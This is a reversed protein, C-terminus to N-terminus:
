RIRISFGPRGYGHRRFGGHRRWGHHRRFGYHRGFGHHRRFGGRRWRVETTLTESGGQVAAAVGPNLVSAEAQRTPAAILLLGALALFGFIKKM